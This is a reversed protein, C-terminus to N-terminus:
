KQQNVEGESKVKLQQKTKADLPSLTLKFNHITENGGGATGGATIVWFKIGVNGGVNRSMQIKLELDVKDICFAVPREAGHKQASELEGRLTEIMEALGIQQGLQREKEDTV